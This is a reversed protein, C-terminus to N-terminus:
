IDFSSENTKGIKNDSIYNLSFKWHGTQLETLPISITKCDTTASNQLLSTEKKIVEGNPAVLEAYCTGNYEVSNNIGGRLYLTDNSIDFSAVMQVTSKGSNPDTTVPAPTDTNNHTVKSEPQDELKESQQIDSESRDPIPANSTKQQNSFMYFAVALCLVILASLAVAIFVKNKDKTKIKISM